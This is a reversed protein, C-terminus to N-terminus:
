LILTALEQPHFIVKQFIQSLWKLSSKIKRRKTNKIQMKSLDRNKTNKEIM